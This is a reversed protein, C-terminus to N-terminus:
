ALCNKKSVEEAGREHIASVVGALSDHPKVDRGFVQGITGAYLDSDFNEGLLGLM